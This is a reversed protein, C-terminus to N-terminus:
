NMTFQPKFSWIFVNGRPLPHFPYTQYILLLHRLVIESWSVGQTGLPQGKVQILQAPIPKDVKQPQGQSVRVPLDALLLDQRSVM